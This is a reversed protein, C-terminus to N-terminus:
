KAADREAKRRAKEAYRADKKAKSSKQSAQRRFKNKVKEVAMKQKKKYGPKVKESRAEAKAKKVERIQEESFARKKPAAASKELGTPNAALADKKLVFCDYPFGQAALELAKSLSDANYFIWSDGNKDFRGTRGARHFYYSSDSPLDLSIVDSVDELDIGRALLDSCVVVSYQNSRIRRIAQKRERQDLDGSFMVSDIGNEKLYAQTKKVLEKTSAFVLAFYPKRIALFSRLAEFLGQHKIDVFHHAVRSSTKDKEGQFLFESGIYRELRCKLETNMTASFVMTQVTEPLKKYVEDIDEFYGLELLMDAEDLVVRRVGHLDFCYSDSLIEKLRGPTGIAIHPPVTTGEKNQSVDAESSYLRVKLKPFYKTLESAFDFVQRALERSPCIVINQLRALNADTKEVMPILYSHTKGSGTESQCVLSKGQLAKPIVRSQVPSPNEYGLKSLARCLEPSLNFENFRSMAAITYCLGKEKEKSFPFIDAHFDDDDFGMAIARANTPGQRQRSFGFGFVGFFANKEQTGGDVVFDRGTGEFLLSENKKVFPFLSQFTMQKGKLTAIDDNKGSVAMRLDEVANGLLLANDGDVRGAREHVGVPFFPLFHGRALQGKEIKPCPSMELRFREEGIDRIGLEDVRAMRFHMRGSPFGKENGLGGKRIGLDVAGQSDQFRVERFNVDKGRTAPRGLNPLFGDAGQRPIAVGEDNQPGRRGVIRPFERFDPPFDTQFRM